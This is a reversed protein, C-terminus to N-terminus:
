RRQELVGSLGPEILASVKQPGVNVVQGPQMSDEWRSRGGGADTGTETDTPQSALLQVLLRGNPTKRILIGAKGNLAAGSASELGNIVVLAETDCETAGGGGGGGDGGGGGGGGKRM